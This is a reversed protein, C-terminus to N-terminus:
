PRVMEPPVLTLYFYLAQHILEEVTFCGYEKAYADLERKSGKLELRM